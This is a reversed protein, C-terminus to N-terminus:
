SMTFTLNFWNRNLRALFVPLLEVPGEWIMFVDDIYRQWVTILDTYMTLQEDAMPSREWMGLYLDAYSPAYTGMVM